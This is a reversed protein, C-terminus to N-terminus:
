MLSRVVTLTGARSNRCRASLFRASYWLASDWRSGTSVATRAVARSAASPAVMVACPSGDGGGLPAVAAEAPESAVVGGVIPSTFVATRSAASAHVRLRPLRAMSAQNPTAITATAQAHNAPTRPLSSTASVRASATRV